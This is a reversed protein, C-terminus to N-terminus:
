ILTSIPPYIVDRVEDAHEKLGVSIQRHGMPVLIVQVGERRAFKMAPVFDSDGTVLIIRQVIRKSALWAVDLGIKIDVEKQTFEPEFDEATLPRATRTIEKLAKRKLVWGDFSLVGRRFAIYDTVALSDQLSKKQGCVETTSFDIEERSIPNTIKKEYPPCDYYYIRFLEEDEKLCCKSFNLVEHATPQRNGLLTYLKKTVFGGDLLISVSKM